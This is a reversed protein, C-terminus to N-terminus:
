NFEQMCSGPIPLPPPKSQTQYKPIQPGPPMPTPKSESTQSKTKILTTVQLALVAMLLVCSLTAFRKLDRLESVIPQNEAGSKNKTAEVEKSSYTEDYRTTAM